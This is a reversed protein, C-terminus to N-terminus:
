HNAKLKLFDTIQAGGSLFVELELDEFGALLVCAGVSWDPDSGDESLHHFLENQLDSRLLHLFLLNNPTTLM